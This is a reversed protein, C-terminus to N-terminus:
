TNKEKLLEKLQTLAAEYQHGPILDHDDIPTFRCLFTMGKDKLGDTVAHSWADQLDLPAAFWYYHWVQRRGARTMQFSQLHVPNMLALGTEEFTERPAAQEPLEGSELGGAPVQIGADSFDPTHEFVLLEDSGRTVYVLVRERLDDRSALTRAEPLSLPLAQTSIEEM